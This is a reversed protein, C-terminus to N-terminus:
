PKRRKASLHAGGGEGRGGKPGGIHVIGLGVGKKNEMGSQGHKNLRSGKIALGRQDDKKTFAAISV